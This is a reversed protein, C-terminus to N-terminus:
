GRPSVGELGEGDPVLRAPTLEELEARVGDREAGLGPWSMPDPLWRRAPAAVPARSGPGVIAVM